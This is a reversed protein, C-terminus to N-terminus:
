DFIEELAKRISRGVKEIEGKKYEKGIWHKHGDNARRPIIHFHLHPISQGAIKGNNLGLCFDKTQTAKLVAKSIKKITVILEGLVKDPVALMSEFHDKPLVLSHGPNVPKIDLFAIVRDNEYIKECPIEGKIIKCFLCDQM